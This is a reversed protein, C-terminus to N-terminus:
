FVRAKIWLAMPIALIAQYSMFLYSNLGLASFLIYGLAWLSAFISAQKWGINVGTLGVCVWFAILIILGM